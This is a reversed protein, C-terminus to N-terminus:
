LREPAGGDGEGEGKVCSGVEDGESGGPAMAVPKLLPVFDLLDLSSGPNKSLNELPAIEDDAVDRQVDHALHGDCDRITEDAGADILARITTQHGNEYALHLATAGSQSRTVADTGRFTV